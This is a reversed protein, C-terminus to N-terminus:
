KGRRVERKAFDRLISEFERRTFAPWLTKTFFWESYVAQWPLFNSTRVEGSTRIILEPDPSGATWLYKSFTKEDLKAINKAGEKKAMEKVASIIEARGGYSVCVVLTTGAFKSTARELAKIGLRIAPSFKDLQGVFKVRVREGILEKADAGIVRTFLSMLYDVENEQRKWNETSFAYVYVTEIGFGKAWRIFEKFKEYGAEHGKMPLFGRAKAWRRNGDMIIGISKPYNDTKDAM